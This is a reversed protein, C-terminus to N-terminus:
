MVMYSTEQSSGDIVYQAYLSYLTINDNQVQVSQVIFM